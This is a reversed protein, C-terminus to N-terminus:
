VAAAALKSLIWMPPQNMGAVPCVSTCSLVLIAIKKERGKKKQLPVPQVQAALLRQQRQRHFLSCLMTCYRQGGHFTGSSTSMVSSFCLCVHICSVVRILAEHSSESRRRQAPSTCLSVGAYVSNLPVFNPLPCFFLHFAEPLRVHCSQRICVNQCCVCLQLMNGDLHHLESPGDL